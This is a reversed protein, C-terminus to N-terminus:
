SLGQLIARPDDTIVGAAGADRWRKADAPDNVIWMIPERGRARVAAVGAETAAFVPLGFGDAEPIADLVDQTADEMLILGAHLRPALTKARRITPVHFCTLLVSDELGRARVAAVVQDLLAPDPGAEPKLEINLLGRPGYRDLVDALTPMRAGAFAPDFSTGVDLDALETADVDSVRRPDGATRELTDDHHIVPVGDRSLRVDFEIGHSGTEFARDFAAFTNEPAHASAGRHALVHFVPACPVGGGM